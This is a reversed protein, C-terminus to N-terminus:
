NISQFSSHYLLLDLHCVYSQQMKYQHMYQESSPLGPVNEGPEFAGSQQTATIAGDDESHTKRLKWHVSAGRLPGTVTGRLPDTVTGRLPGTVSGRMVEQIEMGEGGMAM